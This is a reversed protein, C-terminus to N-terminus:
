WYRVSGIDIHIFETYKGVGGARFSKAIQFLKNNYIGPISFDIALGYLHLSNKAVNRGTNKLYDNYLSSRYGSIIYVEKEKGVRDKIDCLLDIVKLNIPKIEDTYHCRLIYNIKDIADHDYIGSHYYKINLKEDTHINYLNLIRETKNNKTIAFTYKIQLPLYAAILAFIKLFKRRSIM